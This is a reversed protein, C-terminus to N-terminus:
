GVGAARRIEEAFDKAGYCRFSFQGGDIMIVVISTVFAKRFGVSRVADLPVDFRLDGGNHHMVKNLGNPAFSISQDTLTAKGGVWLGGYAAAYGDLVANVPNAVGLSGGLGDAMRANAFLANALRTSIVTASM